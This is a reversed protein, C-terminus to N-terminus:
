QQSCKLIVGLLHLSNNPYNMVLNYFCLHNIKVINVNRKSNPGVMASFHLSFEKNEYINKYPILCLQSM